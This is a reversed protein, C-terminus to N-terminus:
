HVFWILTEKKWSLIKAWRMSVFCDHELVLLAGESVCQLFAFTCILVNFHSWFTDLGLENPDDTCLFAPLLLLLKCGNIYVTNLTNSHNPHKCGSLLHVLAEAWYLTKYLPSLLMPLDWPQLLLWLQKRGRVRGAAGDHSLLRAKKWSRTTKSLELFDMPQKACSGMTLTQLICVPCVLVAFIGKVSRTATLSSYFMPTSHYFLSLFTLIATRYTKRSLFYKGLAGSETSM